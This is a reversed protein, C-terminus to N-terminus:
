VLKIKAAPHHSGSIDALLEGNANLIVPLGADVFAPIDELRKLSKISAKSTITSGKPGSVLFRKDWLINARPSLELPVTAIRGPERAIITQSKRKAFLAGGLTRRGSESSALWHSLAERKAREPTTGGAKAILTILAEDRASNSLSALASTPISIMGSPGIVAHRKMWVSSESQARRIKSQAANATKALALSPAQERIRVREFKSDHNSPDEIWDQGIITLYDRLEARTIDLLPRLIRIGNWNTEPWIAALSKDSSTRRSRMAVTEAQDDATHATLLAEVGHKGCWASMLDYRAARAKAQLGSTVGDHKWKLTQHEIGLARCWAAVKRAEAAAEKRLAHNVTLAVVSPHSSAALRLLALSDGGGSVAIAIRPIQNLPKLRRKLAAADLKRPAAKV